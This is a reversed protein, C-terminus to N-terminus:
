ARQVGRWARAALTTALALLGNLRRPFLRLSICAHQLRTWPEIWASPLGLLEYRAIGQQAAHAISSQLLLLGPSCDAFREDYGIKLLAYGNGAVAALQAAAIADGIHLLAIRLTGEGAAALAYQRYFDRRLEDQLLATGSRAKWSRAEVAMVLDLLAPVESPAPVLVEARVPGHSQARRWARRLDSRRRPSLKALPESWDADLMIYAAGPAPRCAVLARGRAQRCLAHALPSAAPLRQLHLPLHLRLLADALAEAAAANACPLDMPEYLEEVGLLMLHPVSRIRRRLLPAAAVLRGDDHVTVIRLTGAVAFTQACAQIWSFQEIPGYGGALAHWADALASLDDSDNICGIGGPRSPVSPIPRQALLPPDTNLM